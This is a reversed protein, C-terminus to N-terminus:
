ELELTRTTGDGTQFVIKLPAKAAKTQTPFWPRGENVVIFLGEDNGAAAFHLAPPQKAFLPVQWLAELQRSTLTVDDTVIGIESISIFSNTSFVPEPEVPQVAQRGICEVINGAPDLFYFAKADWNKFDAITSGPSAELLAVKKALLKAAQAVSQFPITFAFHYIPNGANAQQFYLRTAGADLYFGDSAPQVKFGLTEGYFHLMAPIDQTFLHLSKIRM